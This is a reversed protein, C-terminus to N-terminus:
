SQPMLAFNTGHPYALFRQMLRLLSDKIKEIIEEKTLHESDDEVWTMLNRLEMIYSTTAVSM